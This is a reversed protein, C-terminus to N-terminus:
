LCQHVVVLLWRVSFDKTNARKLKTKRVALPLAGLGLVRCPPVVGKVVVM